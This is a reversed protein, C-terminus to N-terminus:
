APLIENRLDGRRKTTKYRYGGLRPIRVRVRRLIALNKSDYAMRLNDTAVSAIKVGGARPFSSAPLAHISISVLFHGTITVAVYLRLLLSFYPM